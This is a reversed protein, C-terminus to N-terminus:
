QNNDATQPTHSSLELRASVKQIQADHQNLRATVAEMQQSIASKLQAITREQEQVKRHEKLFENLLMANVADYRVTYIEGNKDRVVLNPNVDAVEEAILGFCTKYHFTVPKLAPISESAKDMPEIDHKFRRSSSITGLKGTDGVYVIAASPAIPQGSIGGIYCKSERTGSPLNDGIRITNNEGAVGVVGFGSCTNFFGTINLGARYGLATNDFGTGNALAQAGVATNAPGNTNGLAYTGIAVNDYGTTNTALANFGVGVNANGTTNSILAGEGFACNNSGITNSRLTAGGFADNWSGTM